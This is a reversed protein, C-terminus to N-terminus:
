AVSPARSRAPRAPVPARLKASLSQADDWVDDVKKQLVTQAHRKLISELSDMLAQSRDNQEAEDRCATNYKWAFNYANHADGLKAFGADTTVAVGFNVASFMLDGNDEYLCSYDPLAVFGSVTYVNGAFTLPDGVSINNNEAFMRDVAIEDPASPLEGQMLCVTNVTDRLVYIRVTKTVDADTNELTENKYCLPYLRLDNAQEIERLLVPSPEIGFTLHGDEVNYKTFSETYSAFVSNDAVLFGSVIGIFLVLFLFVAIYKGCDGRLDRLFRKRLPNKM